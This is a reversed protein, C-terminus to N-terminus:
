KISLTPENDRVGKILLWLCLSIEGIFALPM